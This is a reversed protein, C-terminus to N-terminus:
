AEGRPDSLVAAGGDTILVSDSRGVIFEPLRLYLQACLCMGPRLILDLDVARPREDIRLGLGRFVPYTKRDALGAQALVAEAARAAEGLPIGPGLRAVAARQAADAVDLGRRADRPPLGGPVCLTRGLNAWYGNVSAGGMIFVMEGASATRGTAADHLRNLKPGSVVNTQSQVIADPWRGAAGRYVALDMAAKVEVEIVGPRVTPATHRMATALLEAARRFALQEDQDKIMRLDTLIAAIDSFRYRPLIEELLRARDLAVTGFEFGLVGGAVEARQLARHCLEVTTRFGAPGPDYPEIASRSVTRALAEDARPVLLLPDGSAPVLALAYPTMGNWVYFGTFYRINESSMILAAAMGREALVGQLTRVREV